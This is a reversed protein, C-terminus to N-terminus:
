WLYRALADGISYGFSYCANGFNWILDYITMISGEKFFLSTILYKTKVRTYHCILWPTKKKSSIITVRNKRIFHILINAISYHM